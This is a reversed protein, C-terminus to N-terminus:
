DEKRYKRILYALGSSAIILSFIWSLITDGTKPVISDQPESPETSPNEEEPPEEIPPEEEPPVIPTNVITFNDVESIYGEPEIEIVSYEFGKLLANWTYTWNNDASLRVVDGHVVGNRMLQVEIYEPRLEEYGADNWVKTVTRSTFSPMPIYPEEEPPITENFVTTLEDAFYYETTLQYGSPAVVEKWYYDYEDSLGTVEIKGNADTVLNEKVKIYTNDVLAYLDFTAGALPIETDKVYKVLAIDKTTLAFEINSNAMVETSDDAWGVLNQSERGSEAEYFYAAYAEQAGSVNMKIEAKDVTAVEAFTVSYYGDADPEFTSLDFTRIDNDLAVTLTLGNLNSSVLKFKVTINYTTDSLETFVAHTSVIQNTFLVENLAAEEATQTLLYDKFAVVNPALTDSGATRFQVTMGPTSFNAYHWIALQTAAMAEAATLGAIGTAALDEETWDVWYGYKLIGRIYQAESEDFYTSDELNLKRYNTSSNINYEFDACYTPFTLGNKEVKFLHATTSNWNGTIPNGDADVWLFELNYDPAYKDGNYQYVYLNNIDAYAVSTFLLCLIVLIAFIKKM